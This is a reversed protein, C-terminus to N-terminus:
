VEIKVIRSLWFSGVGLLAAGGALLLVGVGTHILPSLYGPRFVTLFGALCFPLAILVRASIRGEASLTRVQGRLEVRQRMTNVTTGLVEALNGGVERSTRIAIVVWRLDECKMRDAVADIADELETGLRAETLARAFESASPETGEGVVGGLAQSLSFGTRLAGAVLQLTEPLQDGFATARRGIRTRIFVRAGLWGVAGGILLGFASHALLTLLVAPLLVSLLQAVAWEEPRMRLGARDLEGVLQERRGRARMTRDVFSLARQTIASQRPRPPSPLSITGVASVVRYRQMEDLRAATQARAHSLVPLYLASLAAVLMALFVVAMIAWLRANSTAAAPRDVSLPQPAAVAGVQPLQVSAHATVSTSGAHLSVALEASQGALGAPVQVTVLVQQQFAAAAASFANALEAASHAPLVRGGSLAAIRNLVKQDGPLRFAVVDAAVKDRSLTATLDSLSHASSTDAGDSLVLLRRDANAPLGNLAEAAVLVGDYLATGGGAQVRAVTTMLATRNATPALRIAATDSFTLLGVRVDAPLSRAYSVAAARAAVIGDGRMSGSVDLALIVERAPATAPNVTAGAASATADLPTGGATVTISRPDVSAGDPLGGASVLFQVSGPRVQVNSIRGNPEPPPTASAGTMGAALVAGALGLLAAVGRRNM